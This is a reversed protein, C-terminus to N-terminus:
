HEEGFRQFKSNACAPVSSSAFGINSLRGPMSYSGRSSPTRHRLSEQNWTDSSLLLSRRGLPNLSVTVRLHQSKGYTPCSRKSWGPPSAIRQRTHGTRWLQSAISNTTVPCQHFSHGSRGTLKNITRWAKRSSHSFDISNVAEVWREQENQGLWPLLSSAARDSGTEVPARTFSRCLTECEKDWCSVYNKQRGRPICQKAASLLSEREYLDQYAREIISAAPPAAIEWHIWRHSPLLAELWGQSLELAEGSQEPCSGQAETANHPFAPTTVVAVKRLCTEAPLFERLGPRPQHRCEM